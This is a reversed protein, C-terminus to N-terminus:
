LRQTEWYFNVADDVGNVVEDKEYIGFTSYDEVVGDNIKCLYVEYMEEDADIQKVTVSADPTGYWIMGFEETSYPDDPTMLCWISLTLLAAFIVGVFFKKM